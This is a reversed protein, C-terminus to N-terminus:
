PADPISLDTFVASVAKEDIQVTLLKGKETFWCLAAFGDESRLLEFAPEGYLHILEQETKGIVRDASDLPCLGSGAERRGDVTTYWGMRRTVTVGNTTVAAYTGQEGNMEEETYLIGPERWILYNKDSALLRNGIRERLWRVSLGYITVSSSVLSLGEPLEDAILRVVGNEAALPLLLPEEYGLKANQYSYFVQGEAEVLECRAGGISLLTTGEQVPWGEELDYVFIADYVAGDGAGSSSYVLEKRGDGDVDGYVPEGFVKKFYMALVNGSPGRVTPEAYARSDLVPLAEEGPDSAPLTSVTQSEEVPKRVTPIRNTTTPDEPTGCAALLLCLALLAFLVRKM